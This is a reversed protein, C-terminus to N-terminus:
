SPDFSCGVSKYSLVKFVKGVGDGSLVVVTRWIKANRTYVRVTDM